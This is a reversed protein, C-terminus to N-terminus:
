EIGDILYCFSFMFLKIECVYLEWWGWCGEFRFVIVIRIVVVSKVVIMVFYLFFGVVVFEGFGLDGDGFVWCIRCFLELVVFFRCEMWMIIVIFLREVRGNLFMLVLMVLWGCFLLWVIFLVLILIFGLVGIIVVLNRIVFLVM